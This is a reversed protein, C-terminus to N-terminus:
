ELGYRKMPDQIDALPANTLIVDDIYGGNHKVLFVLSVGKQYPSDYYYADDYKSGEPGKEIRNPTGYLALISSIQYGLTAGRTTYANNTVLFVKDIMNRRNVKLGYNGYLWFNSDKRSIMRLWMNYKNAQFNENAGFGMLTFDRSKLTGVKPMETTETIYPYRPPMMAIRQVKRDRVAFVLIANKAPNQYVMYYINADADRLINVPIGYQRVLNETITGLRVNRGLVIDAGRSLFMSDVGIRVAERQTGPQKLIDATDNRLIVKMKLKTSDYQLTTYHESTSYKDAKGFVSEVQELTDGCQIRSISFADEDLPQFPVPKVAPDLVVEKSIVDKKDETTKDEAKKDVAKKDTVKKDEVKKDVAKKDEVKKDDIKEVATKKIDTKPNKDVTDTIKHELNVIKVDSNGAAGFTMAPYTSMMAMIAATLLWERKM